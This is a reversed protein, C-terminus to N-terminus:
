KQWILSILVREVKISNVTSLKEATLPSQVLAQSHLTWGASVRKKQRAEFREVSKGDMLVIDQEYKM